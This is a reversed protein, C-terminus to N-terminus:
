QIGYRKLKRYLTSKGVGLLRAAALKDGGTEHLALLLAKKENMDLSVPEEPGIDWDHRDLAGRLAGSATHTGGVTTASSPPAAPVMEHTGIRGLADGLPAPLHEVDIVEGDVALCAREICSGLERVNGPWHYGELKALAEPALALRRGLAHREIFHVALDRVDEPRACLPELAIATATLAEALDRRLRGAQVAQAPDSEDSAVIRVDVRESRKSGARQVRGERLVALVREQLAPALASLHQLYVTGHNALQFVGPRDSLADQHAGKVQGFLEVELNQESLGACNVPLFPGSADSGFHVARAVHHKGSSAPGRVFVPGQHRAAELVQARVRQMCASSGVLTAPAFSIRAAELLVGVERRPIALEMTRLLETAVRRKTGDLVLVIRMQPDRSGPVLVLPVVAATFSRAARGNREPLDFRFGERAETRADRAFAELGTNPALLGLNKGELNSGLLDRAGRDCHRVIGEDDVILIGDPRAAALDRQLLAPDGAAKLVQELDASQQQGEQMRRNAEELARNQRILDDHQGKIRLMARVVEDLVAQNPKPLFAECGADYGRRMEEAGSAQKSTLIVPAASTRPTQKLRKCVEFASIGNGESGLGADIVFLDFGQEHAEHLGRAGGDVAVIEYGLDRLRNQMILRTAPEEDIL